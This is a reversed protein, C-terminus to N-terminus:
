EAAYLEQASRQVSDRFYRSLEKPTRLDVKRGGLLASLEAEIDALDFYTPRADPMFEVLLDVDSDPRATGTLHSGFLSLTQIRRRRCLEALREPEIPLRAEMFTGGQM